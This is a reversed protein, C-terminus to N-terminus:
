GEIKVDTTSNLIIAKESEALPIYGDVAIPTTSTVEVSAVGPVDSVLSVVDSIIIAKGVAQDLIFSAVSSRVIDAVTNISIGDKTRIKLTLNLSKLLPTLVSVDTGAAKVGPYRTIAAPVGDLTKQAEQVLGSFIKYGDVGIQPETSFGLKGIGTLFTGLDPKMREAKAPPVLYLDANETNLSNPAFGSVLRFVSLASAEQFSIGSPVVSTTTGTPM